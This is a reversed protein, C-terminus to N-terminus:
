ELALARVQREVQKTSVYELVFRQYDSPSPFYSRILQQDVLGSDRMGIWERYNSFEWATLDTVLGAELPNRHIYRCLHLVYEDRPVPIAHFRDEFLTGTRGFMKNFAKSYSNFVANMFSNLPCDGDQRLVLHYHNPMLCYAIVGVRYEDLGEEIRRLLFRYNGANRFIAGRDAGRNYLHYYEGRAFPTRRNPM